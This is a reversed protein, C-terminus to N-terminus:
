NILFRSSSVCAVGFQCEILRQSSVHRRSPTAHRSGLHHRQRRGRDVIVALLVRVITVDHRDIGRRNGGLSGM